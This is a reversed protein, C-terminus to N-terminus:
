ADAYEPELGDRAEPSYPFNDKRWQAAVKAAEEETKFCGLYHEVGGKHHRAVYRNIKPKYSVGWTSGKRGGRLNQQNEGKTVLRLNRRRCDLANGNIHDVERLDESDLGLIERHLYFKRSKQNKRGSGQLYKTRRVYKKGCGNPNLHWRYEKAWADEDDVLAIATPLGNSYVSIKIM